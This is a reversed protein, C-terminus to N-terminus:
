LTVHSIAHVEPESDQLIKVKEYKFTLVKSARLKKKKWNNERGHALLSNLFETRSSQNKKAQM